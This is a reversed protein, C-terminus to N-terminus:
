EIHTIMAVGMGVLAAIGSNNGWSLLGATIDEVPGSGTMIWDLTDILREDALDRSACEILNASLTTTSGYAAEVIARNISALSKAGLRPRDWRNLALTLGLIFDDGTPTLGSGRGLFRKLTEKIPLPKGSIAQNILAMQHEDVAPNLRHKGSLNESIGFLQPLFPSMGTWPRGTHVKEALQTLREKRHNEPTAPVNPTPPSWIKVQDLRITFELNAMSIQDPSIEVALGPSLKDLLKAPPHLNITM